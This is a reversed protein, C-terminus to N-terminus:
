ARVRAIVRSVTEGAFRRSGSAPPADRSTARTTESTDTKHGRASAWLPLTARSARHEADSHRPRLCRGSRRDARRDPGRHRACAARSSQRLGLAAVVSASEPWGGRVGLLACRKQVCATRLTPDHLKDRCQEPADHQEQGDGPEARGPPTVEARDERRIALGDCENMGVAAAPRDVQDVGVPAMASHQHRPDRRLMEGPRGVAGAESVVGVCADPADVESGRRRHPECGIVQRWSTSLQCGDHDGSPVM